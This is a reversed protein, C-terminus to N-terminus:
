GLGLMNRLLLVVSGPVRNLDGVRFYCPQVVYYPLNVFQFVIKVPDLVDLLDHLAVSLPHLLQLSLHVRAPRPSFMSMSM